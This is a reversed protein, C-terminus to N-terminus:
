SPEGENLRRARRACHTTSQSTGPNGIGLVVVASLAILSVALFSRKRRAASAGLRYLISAMLPREVVRHNVDLDGRGPQPPGWGLRSSVKVVGERIVGRVQGLGYLM